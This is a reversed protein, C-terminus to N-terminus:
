KRMGFIATGIRIMNSGEEIAVEFDSTMGMSLIPFPRDFEQSLEDRLDRLLRFCPRSAEADQIAWGPGITMLGLVNIKQSNKITEYFDFLRDPSMGFKSPEKSTNVEILCDIQTTARKEIEQALRPSDLSQIMSFIKLATKAKNTQLHGVMHWDVRNGIASFKQSAEQVRNEGIIRIGCDIAEEISSIPVTKAVAVITVEDPNRDAQTAAIEIRTKLNKINDKIGM